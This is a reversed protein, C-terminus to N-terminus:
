IRDYKKMTDCLMLDFESRVADYDVQTFVDNVELTNKFMSKMISACMWAGFAAWM